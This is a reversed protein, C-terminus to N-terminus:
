LSDRRANPMRELEAAVCAGHLKALGFAIEAAALRVQRSPEHEVADVQQAAREDPHVVVREIGDGALHEAFAFRDRAVDAITDAFDLVVVRVVQRREREIRPRVRPQRELDDRLEVEHRERERAARQGAHRRIADRRADRREVKQIKGLELTELDDRRGHAGVIRTHMGRLLAAVHELGDGPQM